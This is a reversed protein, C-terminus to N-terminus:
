LVPTQDSNLIHVVSLAAEMVHAMTEPDSPSQLLMPMSHSPMPTNNFTIEVAILWRDSGVENQEM